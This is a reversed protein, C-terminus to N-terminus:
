PAQVTSSVIDSYLEYGDVWAHVVFYYTQTTSSLIRLTHTYTGMGGSQWLTFYQPNNIPDPDTGYQIRWSGSTGGSISYEVQYPVGSYMPDPPPTVWQVHINLVNLTVPVTVPSNSAGASSITITGNYTGVGLGTIDVSVSSSSPTTGSTPSMSLWTADDSATWSIESSGGCRTINLTQPSPNQGGVSASFMLSSPSVNLITEPPAAVPFGVLDEGGSFSLYVGIYVMEICGVSINSTFNLTGSGQSVPATQIDILNGDEDFIVYFLTDSLDSSLNYQVTASVTLNGMPLLSGDPPTTSTISVWDATNDVIYNLSDGILEAPMPFGVNIYVLKTGAAINANINFSQTGCGQSVTVTQSPVIANGNEDMVEVELTTSTQSQLRYEVAFTFTNNGEPITSGDEPSANVIRLADGYSGCIDGQPGCDSPCSQVTEGAECIGNGCVSGGGGGCDSPCSQATEGAECIGNGCIAPKPVTISVQESPLSENGSGDVATVRYYYTKGAEVRSDEYKLMDVTDIKEYRPRINEILIRRKSSKSGPITRYFRKEVFERLHIKKTMEFSTNDRYVNYSVTDPSESANWTLIVRNNEYQAKLGSPPLPPTEDEEKSCSCGTTNIIIILGLFLISLLIRGKM